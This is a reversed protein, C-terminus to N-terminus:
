DDLLSVFCCAWFGGLVTNLPASWWVHEAQFAVSFCLMALILTATRVIRKTM